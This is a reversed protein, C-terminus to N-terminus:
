SQVASRIPPRPSAVSEGFRLTHPLLLSRPSPQEELHALLIAFAERGMAHTPQVVTCLSPQVLEGVGIGDFGTVSVDDPVRRGLHRCARIAALALMDNSCVLATVPDDPDAVLVPALAATLDAAGFGVEILDPAPLGARGLAAVVGQWRLRSRDSSAFSGAVMAVRRHGLGILHRTIDGAARVNDVSVAAHGSSQPQNYLLVHPIGDERLTRVASSGDADAVTLVLGDVRNAMLTAIASDERAPDYDSVTLLLTYGADQAAQEVGAVSEAFVPNALSPVLVGISRTTATKLRRGIVNPQYRLTAMVERVQAVTEPAVRSPENVVRSVTATSVGAAQAVDRITARASGPASGPAPPAPM